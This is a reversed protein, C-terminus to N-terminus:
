NADGVGGDTLQRYWASQYYGLVEGVERTLAADGLNKKEFEYIAEVLTEISDELQAATATTPDNALAEALSEEVKDIAKHLSDSGQRTAAILAISDLLTNSAAAFGDEVELEFRSTNLVVLQEGDVRSLTAEVEISAPASPLRVLAAFRDEGAGHVRRWTAQERNGALTAGAAHIFQMGPPLTAQLEIATDDAVGAVLWALEVVGDVALRATSPAVQDLVEDLLAAAHGTDPDAAPNFGLVAARGDAYDNLTMVPEGQPVARALVAADGAELRVARGGYDFTEAAGPPGDLLDIAYVDKISGKVRVGTLAQWHNDQDPRTKILLLGAGSAVQARIEHLSDKDAKLNGHPYGKDDCAPDRKGCYDKHWDLLLLIGFRQSRLAELFDSERHLLLYDREAGSLAAEIVALAPDGEHGLMEGAAHQHCDAGKKSKKSKESKKSKQTKKSKESKKSKQTKKSKDSKMSKKSKCADHELPAWILVGGPAGYEGPVGGAVVQVSIETLPGVNGARDVANLRLTNFGQELVIGSFEFGGGADARTSYAAGGVVLEVRAFAESSGVVDTNRTSLTEGHLPTDVIVRPPTADVSFFVESSSRNGALDVATVRLLHGGEDHIPTGSPYDAGDLTVSLEALNDEEVDIVPIAVPYFGDDDVGGITILPASSDIVFGIEVAARNGADDTASVALRYDGAAAIPEGSVYAEGNLTITSVVAGLDDIEIGAAVASNYYEGDAVGNIIIEPPSRDIRFTYAVRSVNGATDSAVVELAYDGEAAIPTASQYAAGNLRIQTDELNADSVAISAAVEDAYIAGDAVGSIEIVPAVRDIAFNVYVQTANGALDVAYIELLYSGDESVQEGSVFPLGGSTIRLRGPFAENIAIIPTVASNYIGADIVGTVDVLPATNDVVFDVPPSQATNDWADVARARLQHPGEAIGGLALRYEGTAADALSMQQWAGGDLSFEVRDVFSLADSAVVSAAADGRLYGGAAPRLVQVAPPERDRLAFDASALKVWESVGGSDIAAELLVTYTSLALGVTTFDASGPQTAGPAIDLALMQEQLVAQARPDILRLRVPLQDLPLNNANTLDFRATQLEGAAPAETDLSLRAELSADGAVLSFAGAAQTVLQQERIVDFAIAFEGPAALETNWRLNFSRTDGPLMSGIDYDRAAVVLADADIIELRAVAGDFVANGNSYDLNATVQDRDFPVQVRVAREFAGFAIEM